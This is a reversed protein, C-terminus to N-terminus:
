AYERNSSSTSHFRQTTDIIRNMDRYMHIKDLGEPVLASSLLLSCPPISAAGKAIVQAIAQQAKNGQGQYRNVKGSSIPSCRFRIQGAFLSISYLNM